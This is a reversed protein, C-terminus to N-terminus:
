FYNQDPMEAKRRRIFDQLAEDVAPDLGPDQYQDLLRKWERNARVAADLWGEALWQEFSNNDSMTPRYFATLFNDQTHTSGLFHSGPGVERIADLAQANESLDIGEFFSAVKGCLDADIVTKEM